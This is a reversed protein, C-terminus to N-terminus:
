RAVWKVTKERPSTRVAWLSCEWVVSELIYQEAWSRRGASGSGEFGSSEVRLKVLSSKLESYCLGSKVTKVLTAQCRSGTAPTGRSGPERGWLSAVMEHWGSVAPKLQYKGEATLKQAPSVLQHREVLESWRLQSGAWASEKIFGWCPSCLFYMKQQRTRRPV